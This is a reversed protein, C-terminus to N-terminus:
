EVDLPEVAAGMLPPHCESDNLCPSVPNTGLLGDHWVQAEVLGQDSPVRGGLGNTADLPAVAAVPRDVGVLGAGQGGLVVGLGYNLAEVGAQLDGM